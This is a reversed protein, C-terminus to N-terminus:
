LIRPLPGSRSIPAARTLNGLAPGIVTSVSRLFELFELGALVGSVVMSRRMAIKKRRVMTTGMKVAM